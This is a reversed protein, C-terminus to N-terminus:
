LHSRWAKKIKIGLLVRVLHYSFCIEEFFISYPNIRFRLYRWFELTFGPLIKWVNFIVSCNTKLRNLKSKLNQMMGFTNYRFVQRFPHRNLPRLEGGGHQTHHPERYCAWFRNTDQPLVSLSSSFDFYLKNLLYFISNNKVKNCKM